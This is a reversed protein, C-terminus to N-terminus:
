ESFAVRKSMLCYISAYVNKISNLKDSFSNKFGKEEFKNVNKDKKRLKEGNQKWLVARVLTDFFILVFPATFRKRWIFRISRILKDTLSSIM